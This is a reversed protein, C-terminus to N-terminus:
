AFLEYNPKIERAVFSGVSDASLLEIVRDYPVAQYFYFKDPSQVFEVTLTERYWAWYRISTSNKVLCSVRGHKSLLIQGKDSDLFVTDNTMIEKRAIVEQEDSVHGTHSKNSM